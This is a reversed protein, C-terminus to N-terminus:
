KNLLAHLEDNNWLLSEGNHDFKEAYTYDGEVKIVDDDFHEPNRQFYLNGNVKFRFEYGIDELRDELNNYDLDYLKTGNISEKAVDQINDENLDDEDNFIKIADKDSEARFRSVENNDYTVIYNNGNSDYGFNFKLLAKFGKRDIETADWYKEASSENLRNMVDMPKM